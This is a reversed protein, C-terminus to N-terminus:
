LDSCLVVGPPGGGASPSCCVTGAGPGTDAGCQSCVGQNCLSNMDFCDEGCGAGSVAGAAAPASMSVIVPVAIAGAVGAKRLFARRSHNVGRVAPDLPGDLLNADELKKLALRVVDDSVDSGLKGQAKRVIDGVTRRGDCLRWVVASTQNLHHIHHRETDYVLVEDKSETIVLSDVRAAPVHSELLNSM